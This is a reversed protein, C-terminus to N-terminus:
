PQYKKWPRGSLYVVTHVLLIPLFITYAILLHHRKVGGKRKRQVYWTGMLAYSMVIVFIDM